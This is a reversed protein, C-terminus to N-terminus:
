LLCVPDAHFEFALAVDLSIHDEQWAREQCPRFRRASSAANMWPFQLGRRGLLHANRNHPLIATAYDLIAAASPQLLSAGADLVERHGVHRVWLLLSLREVDGFWIDFGSVFFSGLQKVSLRRHM